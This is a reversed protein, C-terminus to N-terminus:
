LASGVRETIPEPKKREVQLITPVIGVAMLLAALGQANESAIFTGPFVYQCLLLSCAVQGIWQTWPFVRWGKRGIVCFHGAWSANLLVLAATRGFTPVKGFCLFLTGVVGLFLLVIGIAVWATKPIMGQQFEDSVEVKM